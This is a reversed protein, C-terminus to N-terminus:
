LMSGDRKISLRQKTIKRHVVGGKQFPVDKKRRPFTISKSAARVWLIISGRLSVVGCAYCARGPIAKVLRTHKNYM